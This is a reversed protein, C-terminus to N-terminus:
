VICGKANTCKMYKYIRNLLLSLLFSTNILICYINWFLIFCLWKELSSKWVLDIFKVSQLLLLLLSQNELPWRFPLSCLKYQVLFTTIIKFVSIFEAKRKSLSAIISSHSTNSHWVKIRHCSVNSREQNLHKLHIKELLFIISLQIIYTVNKCCPVSTHTQDPHCIM